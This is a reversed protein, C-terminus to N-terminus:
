PSWTRHHEVSAAAVSVRALLEEEAVLRADQQTALSERAWLTSERAALGAGSEEVAAAAAERRSLEYSRQVVQVAGVSFLPANPLLPQLRM